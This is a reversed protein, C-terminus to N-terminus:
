DPLRAPNLRQGGNAQQQFAKYLDWATKHQVGLAILAPKDAPLQIAAFSAVTTGVGLLAVAVNALQGASLFVVITRQCSEGEFATVAEACALGHRPAM